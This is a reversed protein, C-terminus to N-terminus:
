CDITKILLFCCIYCHKVQLFLQCIKQIGNQNHFVQVLVHLIIVADNRKIIIFCWQSVSKQSANRKDSPFQFFVHFKCLSYLIQVFLLLSFEQKIIEGVRRKFNQKTLYLNHIFSYFLGTVKFFQVGIHSSNVLLVLM